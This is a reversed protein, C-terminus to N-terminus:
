VIGTIRFLDSELTRNSLSEDSSNMVISAVYTALCVLSIRCSTSSVFSVFVRLILSYVPCVCRDSSGNCLAERKNVDDYKTLADDVCREPKGEKQGLAGAILMLSLISQIKM